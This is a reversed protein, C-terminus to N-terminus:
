AIAPTGVSPLECVNIVKDVPIGDALPPTDAFIITDGRRSLERGIYRGNLIFAEGRRRFAIRYSRGPIMRTVDMEPM